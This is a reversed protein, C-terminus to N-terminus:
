ERVCSKEKVLFYIYILDLALCLLGTIFIYTHIGGKEVCGWITPTLTGICKCVAGLLSFGKANGRQFFATLFLVSMAVNQAFASYISAETATECHLYFALQMGICVTLAMVTFPVFHKQAKEPLYQRGYKFWCVLIAVDCLAWALDAINQVMM